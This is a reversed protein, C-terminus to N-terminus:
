VHARGIEISSLTVDMRNGARAFAPLDTTVMVAAVNKVKVQGSTVKVGMRTLMNTLGQVTFTTASKDGTGNLGVVLGYGILQNGRVGKVSAMDKIRAAHAAGAVALTVALAAAIIISRRM